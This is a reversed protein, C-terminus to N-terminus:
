LVRVHALNAQLGVKPRRRISALRKSHLSGTRGGVLRHKAGGKKRRRKRRKHIVAMSVM